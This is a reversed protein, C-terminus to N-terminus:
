HLAPSLNYYFRQHGPSRGPGWQPLKRREGLGWLRFLEHAERGRNAREVCTIRTCHVEEDEELNKRKMGGWWCKRSGGSSM